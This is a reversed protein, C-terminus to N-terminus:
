TGGPGAEVAALVVREAGERTRLYVAVLVRTLRGGIQRVSASFREAIADLKLAEGEAGFSWLRLLCRDLEPLEAVVRAFLLLRTASEAESAAPPPQSGPASTRVRGATSWSSRGVGSAWPDDLRGSAEWRYYRILEWRLEQRQSRALFHVGRAGIWAVPQSSRSDSM